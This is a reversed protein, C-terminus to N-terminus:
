VARGSPMGPRRQGGVTASGHPLAARPLSPRGQGIRAARLPVPLWGPRSPGPRASLFPQRSAPRLAPHQLSAGRGPRPAVSRGACTDPPGLQPPALTSRPPGHVGQQHIIPEPFAPLRAAMASTTADLCRPLGNLGPRDPLALPLGSPMRWAASSARSAIPASPALSMMCATTAAAQPPSTLAFSMKSGSMARVSGNDAATPGASTALVQLACCARVRDASRTRRDRARRLRRSRTTGTSTRSLSTAPRIARPNRWCSRM